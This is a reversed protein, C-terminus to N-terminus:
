GSPGGGVLRRSLDAHSRRGARSFGGGTASCTSGSPMFARSFHPRNSNSLLM